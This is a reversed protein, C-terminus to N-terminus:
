RVELSSADAPTCTTVWKDRSADNVSRQFGFKKTISGSYTWNKPNVYIDMQIESTCNVGTCRTKGRWRGKCNSFTKEVDFDAAQIDFGFNIASKVNTEVRLSPVTDTSCAYKLAILDGGDCADAGLFGSTESQANHLSGAECGAYGPVALLRNCQYTKKQMLQTRCRYLYDSSVSISIGETCSKLPAQLCTYNQASSVLGARCEFSLAEGTRSVCEFLTSVDLKETWGEICSAASAQLTNEECVAFDTQPPKKVTVTECVLDRNAEQPPIKSLLADKAELLPAFDEKTFSNSQNAEYIKQVALCDQSNESLCGQAKDTGPALLNGQGKEFLKKLESVDAGFGPVTNQAQSETLLEKVSLAGATDKAAQMAEEKGPTRVSTKESASCALPALALHACPFVVAFRMFTTRFAPVFPAGSSVRSPAGSTSGSPANSPPSLSPAPLAQLLFDCACPLLNQVKCFARSFSKLSFFFHATM